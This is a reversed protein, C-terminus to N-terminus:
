TNPRYAMLYLTFATFVLAVSTSVINQPALGGNTSLGATYSSYILVLFVATKLAEYSNRHESEDYRRGKRLVLHLYALAILLFNPLILAFTLSGLDMSQFYGVLYSSLLVVTAILSDILMRRQKLGIM